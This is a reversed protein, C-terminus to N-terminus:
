ITNAEEVIDGISFGTIAADWMEIAGRAHRIRTGQIDFPAVAEAISQVVTAALEKDSAELTLGASVTVTDTALARYKPM